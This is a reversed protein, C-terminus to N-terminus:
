HEGDGGAQDILPQAFWDFYQDFARKESITKSVDQKMFRRVVKLMKRDGGKDEFEKYLNALEARAEDMESHKANIRLLIDEATGHDLNLSMQAAPPAEGNPKAETQRARPM